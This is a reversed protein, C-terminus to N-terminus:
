KEPVRTDGDLPIQLFCNPAGCSPRKLFIGGPSSSFPFGARATNQSVEQNASVSGLAPIPQEGEVITEIPSGKRVECKYPHLRPDALTWSKSIEGFNPFTPHPM